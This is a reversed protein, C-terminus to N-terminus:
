NITTPSLLRQRHGKNVLIGCAAKTSESGRAFRECCTILPVQSAGMEEFPHASTEIRCRDDNRGCLRREGGRSRRRPHPRRACRDADQSLSGNRFTANPDAAEQKRLEPRRHKNRAAETRNLLQRSVNSRDRRQHRGIWVGHQTHRSEAVRLPLPCGPQATVILFGRIIDNLSATCIADARHTFSAPPTASRLNRMNSSQLEVSPWVLRAERATVGGPNHRRHAPWNPHSPPRSTSAHGAKGAAASLEVAPTLRILAEELGNM